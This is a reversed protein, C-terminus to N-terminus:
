LDFRSMSCCGTVVASDHMMGRDASCAVLMCQISTENSLGHVLVSYQICYITAILMANALDSGFHCPIMILQTM